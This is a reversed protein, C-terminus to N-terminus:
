AKVLPCGGKDLPRFAQDAPTSAILKYYDWAGKSESPKKVEWLWAPHIKHGDIRIPGPGFRDDDTPTAKLCAVSAAGDAKIAAIGMQNAVKLDHLTSSYVGAHVTTPRGGGIKPSLCNSLARRCVTHRMAEPKEGSLEGARLPFAAQRVRRMM